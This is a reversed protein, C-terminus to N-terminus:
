HRATTLYGRREVIKRFQEPYKAGAVHDTSRVLKELFTDHRRVYSIKAISPASAKVGGRISDEDKKIFRITLENVGYHRGVAGIRLGSSVKDLVEVKELPSMIKMKNRDNPGEGARVGGRGSM